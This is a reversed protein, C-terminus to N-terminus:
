ALLWGAGAGLAVVHVLVIGNLQNSFPQKRTKHRFVSRGVVAGLSGGFFAFGLLTSEAIRWHGSEARLKDFGFLMFTWGNILAFAALPFTLDQV